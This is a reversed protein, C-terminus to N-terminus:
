HIISWLMNFRTKWTRLFIELINSWISSLNLTHRTAISVAAADVVDEAVAVYRLLM